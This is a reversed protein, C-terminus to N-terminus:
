LKVFIWGFYIFIFFCFQRSFREYGHWPCLICPKFLQPIYKVRNQLEPIFLLSERFNLSRFHVEQLSIDPWTLLAAAATAKPSTVRSKRKEAQQATVSFMCSCKRTPSGGNGNGGGDDEKV